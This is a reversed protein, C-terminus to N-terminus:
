LEDTQRAQEARLLAGGLAHGLCDLLQGTGCAFCHCNVVKKRLKLTNIVEALPALFM